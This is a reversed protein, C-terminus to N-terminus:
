RKTCKALFQTGEKVFDKPVDLFEQIQDAMTSNTHPLPALTDPEFPQQHPAFDFTFLRQRQITSFLSLPLYTWDTLALRRKSPHHEHIRGSKGLWRLWFNLSEPRLSAFLGAQVRATVTGAVAGRAM